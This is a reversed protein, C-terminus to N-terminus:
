QKSVLGTERFNGRAIGTRGVRVHPPPLPVISLGSAVGNRKQPDTGPPVVVIPGRTSILDAVGRLALTFRSFRLKCKM